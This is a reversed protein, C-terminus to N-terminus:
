NIQTEPILPAATSIGMAQLKAIIEPTM